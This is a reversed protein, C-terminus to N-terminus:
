CWIAGFARLIRRREESMHEPMTLTLKYGRSACVFALAIGTNGSTPEIVQGGPKLKGSKEAAQIMAIGIRDKVSGLPNHSEMKLLVTADIGQTVRNLRVLPTNFITETIDAAVKM